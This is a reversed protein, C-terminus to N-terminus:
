STTSYNFKSIVHTNNNFSMEVDCSCRLFLLKLAGVLVVCTFTGWTFMSRVSRHCRQSHPSHPRGNGRPRGITARRKTHGKLNVSRFSFNFFYTKVGINVHLQSSDDHILILIYIDFKPNRYVSM